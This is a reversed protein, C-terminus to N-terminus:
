APRIRVRTNYAALRAAAVEPEDFANDGRVGQADALLGLYRIGWERTVTDIIDERDGGSAGLEYNVDMIGLPHPEDPDEYGVLYPNGNEEDVVVAPRLVLPPDFVLTCPPQPTLAEFEGYADPVTIQEIVIPGKAAEQSLECLTDVCEECFVNKVHPKGETRFAGTGEGCSVCPIEEFDPDPSKKQSWVARAQKSRDGGRAHMEMFEARIIGRDEQPQEM